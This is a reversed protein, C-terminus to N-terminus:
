NKENENSINARHLNSQNYTQKQILDTVVLPFATSFIYIRNYNEDFNIPIYTLFYHGDLM